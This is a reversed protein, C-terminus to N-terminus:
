RGKRWEYAIIALGFFGADAIIKGALLGLALDGTLMPMAYMAAPRIVFSDLLEALGFEALLARSSPVLAPTAAAFSLPQGGARRKLERVLAVGYFGLNESWTAAYAVVTPSAGLYASAMGGSLACATAAIELPLYRKLWELPKSIWRPGNM